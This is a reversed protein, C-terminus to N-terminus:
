LSNESSCNSRRGVGLCSSLAVALRSKRTVGILKPCVMNPTHESYPCYALFIRYLTPSRGTGFSGSFKPRPLEKTHAHKVVIVENSWGELFRLGACSMTM